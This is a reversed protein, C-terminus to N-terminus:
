DNVVESVIWFPGDVEGSLARGTYSEAVEVTTEGGGVSIAEGVVAAVQGEGDLVQIEEGEGRVSFGYPWILLYSDGLSDLRLWGDVLELNGSVDATMQDLDGSKQVPFFIDVSASGGCAASPLVLLIALALVILLKKM